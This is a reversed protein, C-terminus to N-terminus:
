TRDTKLKSRANAVAILEVPSIGDRLSYQWTRWNICSRRGTSMLIAERSFKTTNRFRITGDGDDDNGGGGGSGGGSYAM